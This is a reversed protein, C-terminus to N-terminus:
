QEAANGVIPIIVIGIFTKSINWSTVLGQISGVLYDSCIAVLVAMISMRFPFGKLIDTSHYFVISKEFHIM